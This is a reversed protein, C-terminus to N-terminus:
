YIDDEDDDDEVSECIVDYKVLELCGVVEAYTMEYEHRFREIVATLEEALHQTGRQSMM